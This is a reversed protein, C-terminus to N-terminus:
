RHIRVMVILREPLFNHAKKIEKPNAILLKPAAAPSTHTQHISNLNILYLLRKERYPEATATYDRM